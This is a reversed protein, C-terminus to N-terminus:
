ATTPPAAEQAASEVVPTFKALLSGVQSRLEEGSTGAERIKRLSEAASEDSLAGAFWKELDGNRVHSELAVAPLGVIAQVFEPGTRVVVDTGSFAFAAPETKAVSPVDDGEAEQAQSNIEALQSAIERIEPASNEPAATEAPAPAEAPASPAVAEAPAPVEVQPQQMTEDPISEEPIAYSAPGVESSAPTAPEAEAVEVQPEVTTEEPLLDGGTAAEALSVVRSVLEDYVTQPVHKALRAELEKVRADSSALEERPVMSSVTVELDQVRQKLASYDSAPVMTGLQKTVEDFKEKLSSYEASPVMTGLQRSLEECRSEFDRIRSLNQLHVAAPVTGQALKAALGDLVKGQASLAKARATAEEEISDLAKALFSTGKVVSAIQEEVGAIQKNITVTKRNEERARDLDRELVDIQRELKSTMEHHDKKPVSQRLQMELTKCRLALKKADDQTEVKSM